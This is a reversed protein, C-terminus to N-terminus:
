TNRGVFQLSDVVTTNGAVDPKPVKVFAQFKTIFDTMVTNVGTGWLTKSVFDKADTEFVLNPLDITPISITAKKLTVSDHYRVLLKNERQASASAPLSVPDVINLFTFTNETNVGLTIANVAGVFSTFALYAAEMDEADGIAAWTGFGNMNGIEGSKDRYSISFPSYQGVELSGSAM